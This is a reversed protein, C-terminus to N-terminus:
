KVAQDIAAEIAGFWDVYDGLRDEVAKVEGPRLLRGLKEVAVQQVDEANISYVVRNQTLVAAEKRTSAGNHPRLM